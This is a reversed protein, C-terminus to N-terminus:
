LAASSMPTMPTVPTDEMLDKPPNLIVTQDLSLGQKIQTFLENEIGTEVKSKKALGNDVIWVFSSGDKEQQVAELPVQLASDLQDILINVDVQFGPKILRSPTTLALTVKVRNVETQGDKVTVAAPAIRSVKASLTEKGLANGAIEALQGEKVKWIDSENVNAEVVLQDIDGMTLLPKGKTLTEGDNVGITLVTGSAPATITNEAAEKVLEAKEAQLRLM